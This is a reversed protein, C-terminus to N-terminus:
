ERCVLKIGSRDQLKAEVGYKERSPRRASGNRTGHCQERQHAGFAAARMLTLVM